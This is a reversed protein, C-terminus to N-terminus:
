GKNRENMHYSFSTGPGTGNGITLNAYAIEYYKRNLFCEDELKEFGDKKLLKNIEEVLEIDLDIEEIKGQRNSSLIIKM